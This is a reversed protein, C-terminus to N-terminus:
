GGGWHRKVMKVLGNMFRELPPAFTEENMLYSWTSGPKPLGRLHFTADDVEARALTDVADNAIAELHDDFREVAIKQFEFIPNRDGIVRLMIGERVEAIEALYDVWHRDIQALAIARFPWSGKTGVSRASFAPSVKFSCAVNYLVASNGRSSARIATAMRRTM